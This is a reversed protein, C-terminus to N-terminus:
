RKGNGAGKMYQKRNKDFDKKMLVDGNPLQYVITGNISFVNPIGLRQNEAIAESVARSCIASIEAYEDTNKNKNTKQRM